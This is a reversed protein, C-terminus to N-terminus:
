VHFKELLQKFFERSVVPVSTTSSVAPCWFAVGAVGPLVAIVLGSEGGFVAAGSVLGHEAMDRVVDSSSPLLTGATSAGALAAAIRAADPVTLLLSTCQFYCEMVDPVSAAFAGAGKMAYATAWALDCARRSKAYAALDFGVSRGCVAACAAGLRAAREWDCEDAHQEVLAACAAVAGAVCCGHPAATCVRADDAGAGGTFLAGRVSAPLMAAVLPWAAGQASCAAAEGAAFVQGDLTCVALARSSAGVDGWPLAASPAVGGSPAPLTKLLKAAHACFDALAFPASWDKPTQLRGPDTVIGSAPASGAPM